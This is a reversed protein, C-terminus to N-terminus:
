HVKVTLKSNYNFKVVIPRTKNSMPAGIRHARDLHITNEPNKINLVQKCFLNIKAVYDDHQRSDLSSMQVSNMITENSSGSASTNNEENNVNYSSVPGEPIGFFLMNDRM